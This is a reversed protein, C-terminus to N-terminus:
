KRLSLEPNGAHSAYQFHHGVIQPIFPKSFIVFIYVPIMHHHEQFRRQSYLAHYWSGRQCLLREKSKAKKKVGWLSLRHGFLHVWLWEWFICSYTASPGSDSFSYYQLYSNLSPIFGYTNFLETELAATNWPLVKLPGLTSHLDHGLWRDLGVTYEFDLYIISLSLPVTSPAKNSFTSWQACTKPPCVM